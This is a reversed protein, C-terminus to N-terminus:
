RAGALIKTLERSPEVPMLAIRGLGSAAALLPRDLNLERDIAVPTQQRM